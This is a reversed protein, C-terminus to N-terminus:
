LYTSLSNVCFSYVCNLHRGSGFFPSYPWPKGPIKSVILCSLNGRFAWHVTSLVRSLTAIAVTPADFRKSLLNTPTKWLNSLKFSTLWRFRKCYCRIVWKWQKKWTSSSSRMGVKRFLLAFSAKQSLQCSSRSNARCCILPHLDRPTWLTSLFRGSPKWTVSLSMAPKSGVPFVILDSILFPRIKMTSLERMPLSKVGKICKLRCDDTRRRGSRVHDSVLWKYIIALLINYIITIFDKIFSSM